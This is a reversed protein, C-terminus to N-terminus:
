KARKLTILICRNEQTSAFDTPRDPTGPWAFCFTMTDGDLKYIGPQDKGKCSGGTIALDITALKKGQDLKISGEELNSEMDLAYKDGKFSWKANMPVPQGFQVWSEVKWDGEFKKLDNKDDKDKLGPAAVSGSLATFCALAVALLVPRNM